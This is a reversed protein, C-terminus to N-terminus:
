PEVGGTGKTWPYTRALPYGRGRAACWAVFDGGGAREFEFWDALQSRFRHFSRILPPNVAPWRAVIWEAEQLVCRCVGPDTVLGEPLHHTAHDLTALYEALLLEWALADRPDVEVAARLVDGAQELLDAPNHWALAQRLWRTGPARRHEFDDRLVPVVLERWVGRPVHELGDLVAERIGFRYLLRYDFSESIDFHHYRCVSHAFDRRAAATASRMGATFAALHARAAKKAGRSWLVQYENWPARLAGPIQLGGAPPHVSM